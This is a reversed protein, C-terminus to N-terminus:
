SATLLVYYEEGDKGWSVRKTRVVGSSDKWCKPSSKGEVDAEVSYFKTRRAIDVGNWQDMLTVGVSKNKSLLYSAYDDHRLYIGVHSRGSYDSYYKGDRLTAVVTGEPLEGPKFDCVRPGRLWGRTNPVGFYQVLSACENQFGNPITVKPEIIKVDPKGKSMLQIAGNEFKKFDKIVYGRGEYGHFGIRQYNKFDSGKVIAPASVVTNNQPVPASKVPNVAAAPKPPIFSTPKHAAPSAAHNGETHKSLHAFFKELEVLSFWDHAPACNDFQAKLASQHLADWTKPGVVGDARLKLNTQFEKVAVETKGGFDGDATLILKGSKSNLLGQIERVAKGKDGRRLVAAM